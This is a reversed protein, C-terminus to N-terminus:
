HNQTSVADVTGSLMEVDSGYRCLFLLVNKAVDMSHDQVLPHLSPLPSFWRGQHHQGGLRLLAERTLPGPVARMDYSHRCM